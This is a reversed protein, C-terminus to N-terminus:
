GGSRNLMIKEEIYTLKKIATGQHTTRSLLFITLTIVSFPTTVRCATKM